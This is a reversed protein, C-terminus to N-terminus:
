SPDYYTSISVFTGYIIVNAVDFVRLCKGKFWIM